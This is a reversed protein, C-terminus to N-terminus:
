NEDGLLKTLDDIVNNLTYYDMVEAKDRIEKIKSTMVNLQNYGGETYGEVFALEQKKIKAHLEAIEEFREHCLEFLGDNQEELKRYGKLLNELSKREKTNNIKTKEFLENLQILWEELIKIDEEM